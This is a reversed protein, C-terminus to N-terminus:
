QPHYGERRDGYLLRAPDRDLSNVTRTMATVLNQTQAVLQRLETLGTQSFEKLPERNEKVLADADRMVNTAQAAVSDFQHMTDQMTRMTDQLSLIARHLEKSDAAGNALLQELDDSHAAAAGTVRSLNDLTAAFAARNKDDVLTTLNDALETIKALLQPVNAVVRQLNSERSWIVPYRQDDRVEIEPATASGPTIEVAAGGTLGTVEISAVSDSRIPADGVVEITVRVRAPNQPDLAVGVVRGVQVGSVRVPAGDVLGTSVSAFYVDYHTNQKSFQGHAFWLVAVALGLLLAVVFIGVTVYAARTEM